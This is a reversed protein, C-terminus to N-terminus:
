PIQDINGIELVDVANIEGRNKASMKYSEKRLRNVSGLPRHDELGYWVNLKVNDDWFTRRHADFSDQGKPLVVKGVTQFPFATEDWQVSTDEVSQEPVTQCLQVKFDYEADNERFYERLWRSHVEPDSNDDIKQSALDQQLKTSPFLAYNAMYPGWRYVRRICPTALFHQNPLQAPAMQLHAEELKKVESGIAEPERFHRERIKFIEVTTSVDRLELVPANNFTLDQTKTRKGVPDMFLGEVNFIKMGCGRPGPTRDDKLFSPENAFRIAIKHPQKANAPSCIGQGLHEPLDPSVTFTGKVVAQTKVHTACMGHRHLSFNHSQVRSIIQRVKGQLATENPVEPEVTPDDAQIYRDASFANIAVASAM